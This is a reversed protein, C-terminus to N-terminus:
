DRALPDWVRTFGLDKFDQIDRTAFDTVGHHRLTLALRVDFIRRFAFGPHGAKKWLTDMIRAEQVVDVIRWIPNSRWGAILSAAEGAPLPPRSVAPNRILCYLEMLVQECLVFNADEVHRNLFTRARAHGPNDADCVAFLVNTDCSTM